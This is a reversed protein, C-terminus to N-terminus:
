WSPCIHPLSPPWPHVWPLRSFHWTLHGLAGAQFKDCLAGMLDVGNLQFMQLGHGDYDHNVMIPMMAMPSWWRSSSPLLSVVKLLLHNKDSIFSWPKQARRSSCQLRFINTVFYLLSTLVIITIIRTHPVVCGHSSSWDPNSWLVHWRLDYPQPLPSVVNVDSKTCILDKVEKKPPLPTLAGSGKSYLNRKGGRLSSGWIDSIMLM